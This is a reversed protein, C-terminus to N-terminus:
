RGVAEREQEMMAKFRLRGSLTVDFMAGGDDQPIRVALRQKVLDTLVLRVTATHGAGDLWELLEWPRCPGFCRLLKLVRDDLTTM